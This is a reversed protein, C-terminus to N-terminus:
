PEPEPDPVPEPTQEDYIQVAGAITGKIEGGDGASVTVTANYNGIDTLNQNENLNTLWIVLLLKKESLGEVNYSSGLPLNTGLGMPTTNVSTCYIEEDIRVCSNEDYEDTEELVMYSLNEMNNTTIDMKGSIYELSEDYGYVRLIYASCAGRDYKDKCENKLAKYVDEDNMPIISFDSYKATIDLSISFITSGTRVSNSTSQTSGTFYAYTAGITTIAIAFCVFVFYLKTNTIKM